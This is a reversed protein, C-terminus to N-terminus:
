LYHQTSTKLGEERTLKKSQSPELYPNRAQPNSKYVVQISHPCQKKTSGRKTSYM